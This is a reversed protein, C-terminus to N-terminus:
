KLVIEDGQIEANIRPSEKLAAVAAKVFFSAIGLNVGYRAKFSEKHRARLAMVASMDVENFTTLLAATQQADVLRKAITARRKSMRSRTERREGSVVPVSPPSPPRTPGSPAPASTKAAARDVDTKPVRPGDTPVKSLPVDAERA